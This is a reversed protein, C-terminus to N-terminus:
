QSRTPYEAYQMARLVTSALAVIEQSFVRYELKPSDVTQTAEDDTCVSLEDWTLIRKADSRAVCVSIDQMQPPLPMCTSDLAIAMCDYCEGLLSADMGAAAAWLASENNKQTTIMSSM